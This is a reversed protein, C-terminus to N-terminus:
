FGDDGEQNIPVMAIANKTRAPPLLIPEQQVLHHSGTEGVGEGRVANM